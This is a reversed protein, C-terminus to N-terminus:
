AALRLYDSVEDAYARRNDDDAVDNDLHFLHGCGSDRIVQRLREDERLDTKLFPDISTIKLYDADLRSVSLRRELQRFEPSPAMTLFLFTRVVFREGGGGRTPTVVLYGLRKDGVTYAVLLDTKDKGRRDIIEPHKLSDFLWPDLYPEIKLAALRQRMQELAHGQVVVPRAEDPEELKLKVERPTWEVSSLEGQTNEWAVPYVVRRKGDCEVKEPRCPQRRVTVVPQELGWKWPENGFHTVLHHGDLRSHKGMELSMAQHIAVCGRHIVTDRVDDAGIGIAERTRKGAEIMFPTFPQNAARSQDDREPRKDRTQTPLGKCDKKAAVRRKERKLTEEAIFGSKAIGMATTFLDRVPLEGKKPDDEDFAVVCERMREELRDRFKRETRSVKKPEYLRPDFEFKVAPDPPKFQVIFRRDSDALQDFCGRLDGGTATDIADLTLRYRAIRRGMPDHGRRQKPKRKSPM